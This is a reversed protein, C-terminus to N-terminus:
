DVWLVGLSFGVADFPAVKVEADNALSAILMWRGDELAFAELTRALPDVFWLHAVGLAAYVDRKETLDLVRTSPSLVECVWDPVVEYFATDPYVPMRERRSGALDPVLIHGGVHLEPEDEIYWGGPGDADDGDYSGGIKMGIKSSARAHRPAPRPQTHLAGNVIEAVMNDPANLVDDYTAPKRLPAQVNM